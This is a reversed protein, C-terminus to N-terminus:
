RQRRGLGVAPSALLSSGIVSDRELLRLRGDKFSTEVDIAIRPKVSSRENTQSDYAEFVHYLRDCTLPVASRYGSVDISELKGTVHM